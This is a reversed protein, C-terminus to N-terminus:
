CCYNKERVGGVNGVFGGANITGTLSVDRPVDRGALTAYTILAIGSGGSPGTVVPSNSDITYLFDINDCEFDYNKCILDKAFKVSFQTDENSLLNAEIFVRGSGEVTELTLKATGGSQVEENVTLLTISALDAHAFSALIVFLLGVVWKMPM